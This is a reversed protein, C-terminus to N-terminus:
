HGDTEAKKRWLKQAWKKQQRDSVKRYRVANNFSVNGLHQQLIRLGNATHDVKMAHAAFSARLRQPTVNHTRGTGPNALKPLGAKEACEKVIGWARHRNIGFILMRGARKVPGGRRVYDALMEFTQSDMPLTRTRVQEQKKIAAETAPAGCKPCFTQRRRLRAGCKPCFLERRFRLNEITVAKKTFDINAVPLSLVESIRCGTHFLLRILLKDRVYGAANELKQIDDANLFTKV